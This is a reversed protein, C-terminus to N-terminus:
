LDRTQAGKLSLLACGLSIVSLALPVAPSGSLSFNGVSGQTLFILGGANFIWVALMQAALIKQRRIPYTFMLNMTRNQYSSVIFSSLMVGTFVLYVMSSFLEITAAITEAGPAADPIGTEPDNAIGLFDMAFVFLCFLLALIGATLLYATIRNKKWELRILQIM